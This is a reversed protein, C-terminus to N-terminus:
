LHIPDRPDLIDQVIDEIDAADSHGRAALSRLYPSIEALLRRYAGTDGAQAHAMLISWNLERESSADDGTNRAADGSGSVGKVLTIRPVRKRPGSTM